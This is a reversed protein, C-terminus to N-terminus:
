VASNSYETILQNIAEAMKINRLITLHNGQFTQVSIPNECLDELDYGQVTERLASQTPNIFTVASKIKEFKPDYWVGSKIREYNMLLRKRRNSVEDISASSLKLLLDIRNELDDCQLLNNVVSMLNGFPISAKALGTLVYSQFLNEDDVNPLYGTLVRRATNHSGDILFLQGKYGKRELLSVMQLAVTCGFSHAIVTFPAQHSVFDLIVHLMNESLGEITHTNDDYQLCYVHYSLNAALTELMASTGNIGPLLFVSPATETECVLSKMRVIPPNEDLDENPTFLYFDEFPSASVSSPEDVSSKENTMEQLKAFTLQRLDRASININLEREITQKIEVAMISDMGMQSFSIHIGVLKLDTVGMINMVTDVIKPSGIGDENKQAIVISSVVPEDQTLFNDLVGLCSSIRQQLTGRVEIEPNKDAVYGVEGVAGWQIALGPYGEKKRKECIREMISNAMGYNTQGANGRGCAVSSFVVFQRLEPCMKRSLEDMLKTVHVKPRFVAEFKEVSQNEFIADRLILALNFISEVPGLQNGTKLLEVCGDRTAADETSVLVTVGYGKWSAIKAAQYGNRVGSRSVLILKRVGRLVLWDALELGFGGLGGVIITCHHASGYFRPIGYLLPSQGEENIKVLVKGIHKGSSMFRFAQEIDEVEFVTRPLPKVIGKDLGKLLLDLVPKQRSPTEDLFKDLIVSRVSCGKALVEYRFKNNTQMDFKGIEIFRGGRALCRLSTTLKDESLSNLVVDVGRGKTAKLIMYEFSTDRSNGIHNDPIQPFNQRIYDRKEQTGVTVFIECEYYLAVNLASLGVGGTASHILISQGNKIRAEDELGMLVTIYTVNATAAEEVSWGEPVPLVLSANTLVMTSLAGSRVVGMVTQGTVLQGSFEVGQLTQQQLRGTVTFDAKLRGSASMIDKFNIAAYHIKVLREELPVIDDTKLPGEAWKLSSLDGTTFARTFVHERQVLKSNKLLLHRYTGWKGDKYVNMTLKKKLQNAYFQDNPDFAPAEDMIYTCLIKSSYPEDRLCNALGMVGSSSDDQVVLMINNDDQVVAQLIPLWASSEVNSLDVISLDSRPTQKRLLVLTEIETGYVSIIDVDRTNEPNHHYDADERSLLFGGEKLVTLSEKLVLPRQLANSIIVLVHDNPQEFLNQDKVEINKFEFERNSLIVLHPRTLPEDELAQQLIPTIPVLGQADDMVELSNFWDRTTNELIIQANVRLAETLDLRGEYPVLRYEELVPECLLKRKSIANITLGKVEVGGSSVTDADGSVSVPLKGNAVLEQHIGPHIMIREIHIPVYLSETDKELIKVQLLNDMFATWNEAWEITAKRGDLDCSEIGRFLGSYNYGRMKLVKYFDNKSLQQQPSSNISTAVGLAHSDRTKVTRIKGSVIVQGIEAVEFAGTTRQISVCLNVVDEKTLHTARHFRVDEFIVHLDLLDRQLMALYHEWVMNLYGTAPVLNRGDIVHGNMFEWNKDKVQLLVRQEGMHANRNLSGFAVFWNDEYNWQILPSISPTNVSVPWSVQPYLESLKMCYGSEYLKGLTNLFHQDPAMRIQPGISIDGIISLDEEAHLVFFRLKSKLDRVPTFMSSILFEPSFDWNSVNHASIWESSRKKPFHVLSKLRKELDTALQHKLYTVTVETRMDPKRLYGVFDTNYDFRRLCESLHYAVVVAEKFSLSDTMYGAAVEGTSYGVVIEVSLKLRKMFEALILQCLVTALVLDPQSDQWESKLLKSLDLTSSNVVTLIRKLTRAYIPFKQLSHCYNILVSNPGGFVLSLPVMRGDNWSKSRETIGLKTVIAFGRHLHADM